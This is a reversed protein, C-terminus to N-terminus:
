ATENTVDEFKSQYSELSLLLKRLYSFFKLHKPFSVMIHALCYQGKFDNNASIVSLCQDFDGYQNINGSLIGSPLKASADYM